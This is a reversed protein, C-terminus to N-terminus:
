EFVIEYNADAYEIQRQLKRRLEGDDNQDNPYLLKAMSNESFGRKDGKITIVKAIIAINTIGNQKLAYIQEQPTGLAAYWEYKVKIRKKGSKVVESPAIDGDKAMDAVPTSTAQPPNIHEGHEGFVRQMIEDAAISRKHAERKEKAESLMIETHVKILTDAEWRVRKAIDQLITYDDSNIFTEYHCYGNNFDVASVPLIEPTLQKGHKNWIQVTGINVLSCIFDLGDSGLTLAIKDVRHM